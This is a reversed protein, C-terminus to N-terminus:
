ARLFDRYTDVDFGVRVAGAQEAVPRKVLTPHKLMLAVAGSETLLERQEAPLQRWTTSRRNLLADLGTAAMWRELMAKELGDDRLDHFHYDIGNQELWKRAKRCTDCNPIGYITLM